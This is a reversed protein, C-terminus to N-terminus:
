ASGERPRLSPTCGFNVVGFVTADEIPLVRLMVADIIRHLQKGGNGTVGCNLFYVGPILHCDFEFRATREAGSELELGPESIAPLVGGGLELGSVRKLLMHFRVDFCAEEFAVDYEFAYREGSHLCNRPQGDLSRLRPREIRAGCVDYVVTSEPVLGPDFLGDSARRAPEPAANSASAPAADGEPLTRLEERVELAREPPAYLLRHYHTVADKATGDFLVEGRDMVLARDCLEVVASAAHSVFLVAAGTSRIEEIRAFCKRQFAEDGVALIEDVVLVDPDVHVAVSFALRAFMGSSYHAVPRDVYDGIDAFAIVQDMRAEIEQASLGLIAANIRINERGTFDRNFGAGLELLAAIRGRVEIAGETPELTGCIMQLLSSKGCGNRGVLGVTEGRAVELDVGRVAWVGERVPRRGPLLARWLPDSPHRDAPYCKSVGRARIAWDSSM